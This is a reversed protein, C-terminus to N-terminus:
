TGYNDRMNRACVRYSWEPPICLDVNHQGILRTQIIPSATQKLFNILGKCCQGKNRFINFIREVEEDRISSQCDSLNKCARIM